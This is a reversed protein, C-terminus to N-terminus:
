QAAEIRLEQFPTWKEHVRGGSVDVTMVRWHYVGVPLDTVIFSTQTLGIEDILPTVGGPEASLQFQYQARPADPANWRFLYQRYRGARTEELSATLRNLRRYFAYTAPFGELGNPDIGTVRVFYSGDGLPPLVAETSATSTEDLVNLFGADQAIQVNYGTAGPLPKLTFRLEEDDQIRGPAILEPAPLLPVPGSLASAMGFGAPLLEERNSREASFM